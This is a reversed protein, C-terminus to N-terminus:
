SVAIKKVDKKITKLKPIDITLIGNLSKAKIKDVNVNDPMYFSRSYHNESYITDDKKESEINIVYIQRGQGDIDDNITISIDKKSVGPMELSISYNDELESIFAKPKRYDQYNFSEDINDFLNFLLNNPMYNILKM